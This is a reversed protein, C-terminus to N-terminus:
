ATDGASGIAPGDESIESFQVPPFVVPEVRSIDITSFPKSGPNDNSPAVRGSMRGAAHIEALDRLMRSTRQVDEESANIIYSVM